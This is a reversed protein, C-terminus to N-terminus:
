SIAYFSNPITSKFNEKVCEEDQRQNTSKESEVDREIARTRRGREDRSLDRNSSADLKVICWKVKQIQM